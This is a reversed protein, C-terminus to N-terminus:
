LCQFNFALKCLKKNDWPVCWFRPLLVTTEEDEEDDEEDAVATFCPPQPWVGGM